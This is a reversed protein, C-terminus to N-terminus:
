SDQCAEDFLSDRHRKLNEWEEMLVPYITTFNFDTLIIRICLMALDSSWKYAFASILHFDAMDLFKVGTLASGHVYWHLRRYETEHFEKLSMELESLGAKGLLTDAVIIDKELNASGTWRNNPHKGDWFERRKQLIENENNRIYDLQPTYENPVETNLDIEYYEKLIVAVKLKASEEWWHMKKANSETADSHLLACDVTIELLSRVCSIVAQFDSPENLKILSKMWGYSRLFMGQLSEERLSPSILCEVFKDKITAMYETVAKAGLYRANAIRQNQKETSNM